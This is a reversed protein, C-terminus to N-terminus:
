VARCADTRGHATEANPAFSGRKSITSPAADPPRLTLDWGPTQAGCTPCRLAITTPDIVLTWAIARVLVSVLNLGIAAVVWEWRVVTFADGVQGWNPGRWWFIVGVGAAAVRHGNLRAVDYEHRREM